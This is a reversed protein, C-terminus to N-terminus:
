RIVCANPLNIFDNDLTYLTSKTFQASALVLSDAMATSHNLSLHAAELAIEKNIEVIPNQTMWGIVSLAQDESLSQLLKKYVEYIIISPLFLPTHKKYIAECKSALPGQNILEIWVSSDLVASNQTSM